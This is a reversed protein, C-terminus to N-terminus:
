FRFRQWSNGWHIQSARSRGLSQTSGTGSSQNFDGIRNKDFVRELQAIEWNVVAVCDALDKSIKGRGRVNSDKSKPHDIKTRNSSVELNKLEEILAEHGPIKVLGQNLRVRLCDYIDTQTQRAFSFEKTPIGERFLEQIHGASNWSDFTLRQVRRAKCVELIVKSVNDYDVVARRGKGLEKPVWELVLDIVTLIGKETPEAHGVAFAFADRVLGADAHARSTLHPAIIQPSTIELGVSQRTEGTQSNTTFIDVARSTTVLHPDRLRAPGIGAPDIDRAAADVVLPNIFAYASSPRINEYDRAAAIPDKDYDAAVVPDNKSRLPNFDFTSLDFILTGRTQKDWGEDKLKQMFDGEEKASSLAVRKGYDPFTATSRGIRAYVDAANSTKGDDSSFMALEDFGVMVATRGVLTDAKSHGAGIILNKYPAVIETEKVIIEGKDIFAKFFTSDKIYNRVYGFITGTTQRESAALVTLYIMSSSPIGLTEQPCPDVFLRYFEYAIMLGVTSSNHSVFGNAVYEEVENVGLDYMPEETDWSEVIQDYFLNQSQLDILHKVENAVAPVEKFYDIIKPLCQYTIGSPTKSRLTNTCQRRIGEWQDRRTGNGELKKMKKLTTHLHPIKDVGSGHVKASSDLVHQKRCLRFSVNRQFLATTEGYTYLNWSTALEGSNLVYKSIKKRRSSIIGFDLLLIQVERILQESASALGVRSEGEIWGDTDYLGQLFARIVERPASRVWAPVKKDYATEYGLGLDELWKRVEVSNFCLDVASTGTKSYTHVKVGFSVEAFNKFTELISFDQNTLAIKSKQSTCGDGVLLGLFYGLEVPNIDKGNFNISPMELTDPIVKREICLYDGVQIDPMKKWVQKGESTLVLLPHTVAGGIEYGYRTRFNICKEPPKTYGRHVQKYGWRTKVEFNQPFSKKEEGAKQTEFLESFYVLGKDKHRILSNKLTKGSRMGIGMVIELYNFQTKPEKGEAVLKANLEPLVVDNPLWNTKEEARWKYALALEEETMPLNYIMKLMLRQAPFLGGKPNFADCITEVFQIVDVQQSAVGLLEAELKKFFDDESNDQKKKRTM